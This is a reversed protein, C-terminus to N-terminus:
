SSPFKSPTSPHIFSAQKTLLLPRDKAEEDDDEDHSTSITICACRELSAFFASALSTGIRNAMKDLKDCSVFSCNKQQPM